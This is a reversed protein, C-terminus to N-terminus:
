NPLIEKAFAKPDMKKLNEIFVWPITVRDTIKKDGLLCFDPQNKRAVLCNKPKKQSQEIIGSRGRGMTFVLVRCTNLLPLVSCIPMSIALLFHCAFVSERVVAMAKVHETSIVEVRV